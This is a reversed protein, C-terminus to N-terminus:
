GNLIVDGFTEDFKISCMDKVIIDSDVYTSHYTKLKFTYNVSEDNILFRKSLNLMVMKNDSTLNLFIIKIKGGYEDYIQWLKDIKLKEIFFGDDLLFISDYNREKIEVIVNINGNGTVGSLDFHEYENEPIYIPLKFCKGFEKIFLDRCKKEQKQIM